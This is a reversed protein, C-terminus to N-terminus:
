TNHSNETERELTANQKIQNNSNTSNGRRADTTSLSQKEIVESAIDQAKLDQSELLVDLLDDIPNSRFSNASASSQNDSTIDDPLSAM